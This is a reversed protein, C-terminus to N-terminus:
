SGRALNRCSLGGGTVGGHHKCGGTEAAQHVHHGHLIFVPSDDHEDEVELIQGLEQGLAPASAQGLTQQGLAQQARTLFPEPPPPLPSHTVLYLLQGRVRAARVRARSESPLGPLGPACLGPVPLTWYRVMLWIGCNVSLKTSNLRSFCREPEVVSISIMAGWLTTSRVWFTVSFTM